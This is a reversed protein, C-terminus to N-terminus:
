ALEEVTLRAYRTVPDALLQLIPAMLAYFTPYYEFTPGLLYTESCDINLVGVPSHEDGIRFSALSGIMEGAGRPGFYEAVEQRIPAALDACHAAMDRADEYVSAGGELLALPAGPLALRHGREHEASRPVPLAIVPIRTADGGVTSHYLLEQPLYLIGSLGHLSASTRDFFRLASLIEQAYGDAIAANPRVVLMINAGYRVEETAGRFTRALAAIILLAAVIREALESKGESEPINALNSALEQFTRRFGKIADYNPARHIAATLERVREDAARDDEKLRLFLVGTWLFVAIWFGVVWCAVDGDRPGEIFLATADSIRSPWVALVGGIALSGFAIGAAIWPRGILQLQPKSLRGSM